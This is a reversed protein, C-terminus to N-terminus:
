QSVTVRGSGPSFHGIAAAQLYGADRLALLCAQAREAPIALLLGGSTQPDYLAALAASDVGSAIEINSGLRLNAPHATSHLGREFCEKVGQLLPVGALEVVVDVTTDALMELLHGVLGFGTVDTAATCGQSQAVQAAVANSQLMMTEAEVLQTSNLDLQMHAAFLVGTGLPKTLLLADGAVAGQKRLVNGAAAGNVVFGISPESGELTHGGVLPCQVAAFEHLAGALLQYLDGSQIEPRAYPLQIIAQASLPSAGMAYLDSLAHNAAIRGQTFPDTVLERLVDVSQFLTEGGAAILAADDGQDPDFAVAPYDTRLRALADRLADAPLKAACGGCHMAMEDGATQPEDMSEAPMPPLERFQSMFERDIRDKWQWVGHGAFGLSRWNAVAGKDGTALLSLYKKQPTYSELERHLCHATLNNALVPGQRVAFVGAKPRPNHAMHAVDGAAFVDPHSVSQLKSNVTVFGREDTELGAQGPWGPAAAATCWFVHDFERQGGVASALVVKGKTASPTAGSVRWGGLVEIKAHDLAEFTCQRARNNYEALIMDSASILTIKVSADPRNETIWHRAALAVEVSGVGGGVIALQSQSDPHLEDCWSLWRSYFSTIPKVATIGPVGHVLATDPVSGVDLSLVDWRLDPRPYPFKLNKNQLEIGSVEARVFRAGAWECLRQVDIHMDSQSYHGALLGPLMGSYPSETAATVLTIRVGPPPNMGLMRLALVHSHGGGVLVLETAIEKM